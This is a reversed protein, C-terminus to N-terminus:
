AIAEEIEHGPEGQCLEMHEKAIRKDCWPGAGCSCRYRAERPQRPKPPHPAFHRCSFGPDVAQGTRMCFKHVHDYDSCHDCDEGECPPNSAPLVPSKEAEPPQTSGAASAPSAPSAPVKKNKFIEEEKKNVEEGEQIVHHNSIKRLLLIGADGSDGTDGLGYEGEDGAKVDIGIWIKAMRGAIRKNGARVRNVKRVERGFVEESVTQLGESEAFEKYADYLLNKEIWLNPGFECRRSLFFGVPDSWRKYEEVARHMNEDQTFKGNKLLRKLGELAWNVIGSREKPDSLWQNEINVKQRDGTFENPFEVVVVRDWWALSNDSVPPLKNALVVIKAYNIFQLQKQCGKIEAQLSDQGTLQKVVAANLVSLRPESDVNVLKGILNTVQFREPLRHLPVSAFAREGIIGRLTRILTGKGNRGTGVLFFLKHIPYDRLFCYGFVERVCERSSQDPLVEELWNKFKPCDASPDYDADVFNRFFFEPSHGGLEGTNINLVGNKFAILYDPPERLDDVFSQAQVLQLLTTLHHARYEAGETEALIQQIHGEADDVWMRGDWRFMTFLRRDTRIPSSFVIYGALENLNVQKRGGDEETQWEFCGYHFQGTFVLTGGACEPTRFRKCLASCRKPTDNM